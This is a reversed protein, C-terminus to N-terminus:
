WRVYWLGAVLDTRPAVDVLLRFYYYFLIFADTM